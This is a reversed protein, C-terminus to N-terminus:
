TERSAFKWSLGDEEKLQKVFRADEETWKKKPKKQPSEDPAV